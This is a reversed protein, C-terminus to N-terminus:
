ECDPQLGVGRRCIRSFGSEVVPREALFTRDPAERAWRDLCDTIRVPYDGLPQSSKLYVIGDPAAASTTEIDGLRVPRIRRTETAM